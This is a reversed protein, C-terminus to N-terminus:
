MMPENVHVWIKDHFRYKILLLIDVGSRMGTSFDVLLVRLSEESAAINGGVCKLLLTVFPPSLFHAFVSLPFSFTLSYLTCFGM